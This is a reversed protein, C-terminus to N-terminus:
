AASERELAVRPAAGRHDLRGPSREGRARHRRHHVRRARGRAAPRRDEGHRERHPARQAAARDRRVRRWSGAHGASARRAHRRRARRRDRLLRGGARGGRHHADGRSRRPRRRRARRSGARVRPPRRFLRMSRLLAIAVVPVTAAADVRLLRRFRALVVLPAIAGTGILAAGVGGLAILAPVLVAGLGWAAMTLGEKVALARALLATPTVRELLTIACVELLGRSVGALVAVALAVPLSTVLGLVVFVAGAAVTAALLVPVIRARGVLGFSGATGLVSGAGYLATLYAAGSGGLDLVGVALVVALVDFAGVTVFTAGLVLM